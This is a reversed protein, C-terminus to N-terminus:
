VLKNYTQLKPIAFMFYHNKRRPSDKSYAPHPIIDFDYISSLLEKIDAGLSDLHVEIYLRPLFGRITNLGGKIVSLEHGEVDIKIFDPPYHDKSFEDISIAPVRRVGIQKGWNELYNGSVLQGKKISSSAVILDIEGSNETVAMGIPIINPKQKSLEELKALSEKAPEFSYVLQFNSSLIAAVEGVNGGIDYAVKGKVQRIRAIANPPDVM